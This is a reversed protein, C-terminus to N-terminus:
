MCSNSMECKSETEAGSLLQIRLPENLVAEKEQLTLIVHEGYSRYSYAFSSLKLYFKSKFSGEKLYFGGTVRWSQLVSMHCSLLLKQLTAAISKEM